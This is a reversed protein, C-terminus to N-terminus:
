RAGTDAFRASLTLITLRPRNFLRVQPFPYASSYGLGPSIYQSVGHVTALGSLAREQPLWRSISQAGPPTYVPGILPLRWQGDNWHGSLILSVLGPFHIASRATGEGEHLASVQDADLPVHSVLIFADKPNMEKAAAQARELAAMQQNVARLRAAGDPTQGEPTQTLETQRTTLAYRAAEPDTTYLSAPSFWVAQKGMQVRQPSDLYIAGREEARLIFDAKADLTGRDQTSLAEPDDDGAILFVPVDKSFQDILEMLPQADGAKGVMDGSLVVAHYRELRFLQYLRQQEPGFRIGQMDSIHLIKFGELASDLNSVTVHQTELTAYGNNAMNLGLVIGIILVFFLFSVLCGPRRKRRPAFLLKGGRRAM